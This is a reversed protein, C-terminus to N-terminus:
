GSSGEQEPVSDLVLEDRAVLMRAFYLVAGGVAAGAALAVAGALLSEGQRLERRVWVTRVGAKAVQERPTV